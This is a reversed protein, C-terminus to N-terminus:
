KQCIDEDFIEDFEYTKSISKSPESITITHDFKNIEVISMEENQTLPKLRCSVTVYNNKVQIKSNNIKIPTIEM